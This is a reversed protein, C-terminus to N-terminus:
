ITDIGSGLLDVMMGGKVDMEGCEHPM